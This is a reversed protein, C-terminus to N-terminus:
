CDAGPGAARSCRAAPFLSISVDHGLLNLRGHVGRAPCVGVLSQWFGVAGLFFAGDSFLCEPDGRVHRARLLPDHPAAPCLGLSM